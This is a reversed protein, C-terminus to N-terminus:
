RSSSSLAYTVPTYILLVFSFAKTPEKCFNEVSSPGPILVVTKRLPQGRLQLHHWLGSIISKLCSIILIVVFEVSFLGYFVLSAAILFVDRLKEKGLRGLGHWIVLVVPMFILIFSFSNFLM